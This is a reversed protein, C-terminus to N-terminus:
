RGRQACQVSDRQDCRRWRRNQAACRELTVAVTAAREAILARGRLGAACEVDAFVVGFEDVSSTGPAVAVEGVVVALPSRHDFSGDGPEDGVTVAADAVAADFAVLETERESDGRDVEASEDM